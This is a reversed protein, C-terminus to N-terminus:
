FTFKLSQVGGCKHVQQEKTAAAQQQLQLPRAEVVGRRAKTWGRPLEGWPSIPHPSMGRQCPSVAAGQDPPPAADTPREATTQKAIIPVLSIHLSHMINSQKWEFTQLAAMGWADICICIQKHFYKCVASLVPLYPRWVWCFWVPNYKLSKGETHGDKWQERHSFSPFFSSGLQLKVGTLRPVQKCTVTFFAQEPLLRKNKGASVQANYWATRPYTAPLPLSESSPIPAWHNHLQHYNFELEQSQCRVGTISKGMLQLNTVADALPLLAIGAWASSQFPFLRSSYIHCLQLVAIGWGEQHASKMLKEFCM